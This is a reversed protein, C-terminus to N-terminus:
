VFVAFRAKRMENEAFRPIERHPSCAFALLSEESRESHCIASNSKELLDTQNRTL